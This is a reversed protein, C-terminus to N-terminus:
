VGDPLEGSAIYTAIKDARSLLEETTLAVLDTPKYRAVINLVTNLAVERERMTVEPAYPAYEEPNETNADTM